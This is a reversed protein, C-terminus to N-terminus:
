DGAGYKKFTVTHKVETQIPGGGKGAVEVKETIMGFYKALSNLAGLKDILKIKKTDGIRVKGEKDFGWLEDVEVSALVKAIDDPIQQIPLLRGDADFLKRIDAFAIAAYEKLIREQSIGIQLFLEKQKSEIYAQIHLKTFNQSAIEKASKESYGARIAAQTGNLDILYEECFRQEKATLKKAKSREDKKLHTITRSMSRLYSCYNSYISAVVCNVSHRIAVRGCQRSSVGILEFTFNYLLDDSQIVQSRM